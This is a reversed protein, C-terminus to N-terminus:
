LFGLVGEEIERKDEQGLRWLLSAIACRLEARRHALGASKAVTPSSQVGKGGRGKRGQGLSEGQGERRAQNAVSRRARCDGSAVATDGLELRRGRGRCSAISTSSCM